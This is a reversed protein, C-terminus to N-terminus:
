PERVRRISIVDAKLEFLAKVVQRGIEDTSATNMYLISNKKDYRFAVMTYTELSVM